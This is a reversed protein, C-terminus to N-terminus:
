PILPLGFRTFLEAGTTWSPDRPPDAAEASLFATVASIKEGEFTLVDIVWPAFVGTEADLLYGAIAPQGNAWTTRHRWSERVTGRGAFGSLGQWARLMADQLADEADHISGLMRYCHARLESRYAEALEDFARSDGSQALRLLASEDNQEATRM